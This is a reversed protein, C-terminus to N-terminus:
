LFVHFSASIFSLVVLPIASNFRHLLQDTHFVKERIIKEVNTGAYQFNHDETAKLSTAFEKLKELQVCLVFLDLKSMDTYNHAHM